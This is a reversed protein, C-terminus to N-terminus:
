TKVLGIGSRLSIYGVQECMGLLLVAGTIANFIDEHLELAPVGEPCIVVIDGPNTARDLPKGIQRYFPENIAPMVYLTM